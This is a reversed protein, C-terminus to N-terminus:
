GDLKLSTPRVRFSNGNKNAFHFTSRSGNSPKTGSVSAETSDLSNKSHVKKARGTTAIM